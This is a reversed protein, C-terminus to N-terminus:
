CLQHCFVHTRPFQSDESGVNFPIVSLIREGLIEDCSWGCVRSWSASVWEVHYPFSASTVLVRHDQNENACQIIDELRNSHLTLSRKKERASDQVLSKRHRSYPSDFSSSIVSVPRKVCRTIEEQPSTDGRPFQTSRDVLIASGSDLKCNNMADGVSDGPFSTVGEALGSFAIPSASSLSLEFSSLFVDGCLVDAGFSVTVPAPRPM